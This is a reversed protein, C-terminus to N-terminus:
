KSRTFIKNVFDKFKIQKNKKKIEMHIVTCLKDIDTFYFFPMKIKFEKEAWEYFNLLEFNNMGLDAYWNSSPKIFSITYKEYLHNYIVKFIDDKSSESYDKATKTPKESNVFAFFLNCFESLTKAREFQATEADEIFVNYHKEMEMMLEYKALTDFRLLRDRFSISDSIKEKKIDYKEAIIDKATEIIDSEKM